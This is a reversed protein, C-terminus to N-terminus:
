YFPTFTMESQKVPKEIDYKSMIDVVLNTFWEQAYPSIYITDILVNIDVPIYRGYNDSENKINHVVARVEKEHEFSKRKHWFGSNVGLTVDKFDVYNVAGISISPEKGLANYLNLYTTKIAVSCHNNASYLKWMAESEYKSEHWCNIYTTKRHQEGLSNIQELLRKANAAISDPDTTENGPATIIAEVFYRYYDENWKNKNEIIGKAGEFPDEFKDARSFYLAQNKLLAVFKAFDMFRWLTSTHDPVRYKRKSYSHRVITEKIKDSCCNGVYILQGDFDYGLHTRCNTIFQSGCITCNDHHENLFIMSERTHKLTMKQM